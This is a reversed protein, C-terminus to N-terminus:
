ILTILCDYKKNEFLVKSNASLMLELRIMFEQPYVLAM